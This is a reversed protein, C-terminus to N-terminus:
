VRLSDVVLYHLINTIKYIISTITTTEFLILSFYYKIM